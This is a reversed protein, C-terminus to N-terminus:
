LKAGNQDERYTLELLHLAVRHEMWCEPCGQVHEMVDPLLDAGRQALLESYYELVAFCEDCTLRSPDELLVQWLPRTM